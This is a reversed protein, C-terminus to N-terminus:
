RDAVESPPQWGRAKAWERLDAFDGTADRSRQQLQLYEHGIPSFRRDCAQAVQPTVQGPRLFCTLVSQSMDRQSAKLTTIGTVALAALLLLALVAAGALTKGLQHRSAAAEAKPKVEKLTDTLEQVRRGLVQLDVPRPQDPQPEDFTM